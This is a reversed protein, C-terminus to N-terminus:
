GFDRIHIAEQEQYTNSYATLVKERIAMSDADLEAKPAAVPEFRELHDEGRLLMGGTRFEGKPHVHAPVYNLGLGIRRHNSRNPGSRHPSLGHHMSFQGPKLAMAASKSDDLPETIIQAARNVSNDVVNAVHAMQRPKGEFPLVEMCGADESADTLAVWVTIQDLPALGHYTLDQHWAAVTTTNAEKIFFTSTYMLIDPGLIDEIKDLIRSDKALNTVWPLTIHPMTRWRHDKATNVPEGLWREFRALGELCDQREAENLFENPSLFEDHRFKEVDAESLSKM